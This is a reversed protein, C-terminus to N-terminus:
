NKFLLLNYQFDYFSLMIDQLTITYKGVPIWFNECLNKEKASKDMKFSQQYLICVFFKLYKIFIRNDYKHSRHM